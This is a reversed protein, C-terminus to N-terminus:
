ESKFQSNDASRRGVGIFEYESQDARHRNESPKLRPHHSVRGESGYRPVLAPVSSLRRALPLAALAPILGTRVAASKDSTPDLTMKDANEAYMCGCIEACGGDVDTNECIEQSM